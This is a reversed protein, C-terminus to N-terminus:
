SAPQPRKISRQWLEQCTLDSLEDLLECWGDRMVEKLSPESLSYMLIFGVARLSLDEASSAPPKPAALLAAVSPQEFPYHAVHDMYISGAVRPFIRTVVLDALGEMLAYSEFKPGCAHVLEHTLILQRAGESLQEWDERYLIVPVEGAERWVALRQEIDPWEQLRWFGPASYAGLEQVVAPQAALLEQRLRGGLTSTQCSGLVLCLFLLQSGKM